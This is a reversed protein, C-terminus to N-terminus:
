GAGRRVAATARGDRHQGAYCVGGDAGDGVGAHSVMGGPEVCVCAPLSRLCMVGHRGGLVAIGSWGGWVCVRVITGGSARVQKKADAAAMEAKMARQANEEARRIADQAQEFAESQTATKLAAEEQLSRARSEVAALKGELTSVRAEATALKDTTAAAATLTATLQSQIEALSISPVSPPPPCCPCRKVVVHRCFYKSLLQFRPSRRGRAFLCLRVAVEIFRM